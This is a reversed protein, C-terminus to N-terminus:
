PETDGTVMVIGSPPVWPSVCRQSASQSNKANRWRARGFLVARRNSAGSGQLMGLALRVTAQPATRV